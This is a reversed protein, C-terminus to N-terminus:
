CFGAHLGPDLALERGLLCDRTLRSMARNFRGVTDWRITQRVSNCLTLLGGRCLKRPVIVLGQLPLKRCRRGAAHLLHNLGRRGGFSTAGGEHLRVLARGDEHLRGTHFALAVSAETDLVSGPELKCKGAFIFALMPLPATVTALASARRKARM